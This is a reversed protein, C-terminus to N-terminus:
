VEKNKIRNQFVQLRGRVTLDVEYEGSKAKVGGIVSPDIDDYFVPNQAGLLTALQKKVEASVEHASSVVVQDSGRRNLETEIMRLVPAIDRTRREDVLVAAVHRAITDAGTGRALQETAYAVLAKNSTATM